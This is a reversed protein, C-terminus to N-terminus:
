QAGGAFGTFVFRYSQATSDFEARFQTPYHTTAAMGPVAPIPLGFSQKALLASNAIMPEVFIPKQHTYGVVM